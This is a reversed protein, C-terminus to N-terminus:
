EVTIIIIEDQKVARGCYKPKGNYVIASENQKIHSEFCIVASTKWPYRTM